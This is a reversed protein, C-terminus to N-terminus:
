GGYAAEVPNDGDLGFEVSTFGSTSRLLYWFRTSPRFISIDAKGDGDYDAVVPLDGVTGWSAGLFTQSGTLLIFFDPQNPDASGRFIATDIKGDGDYDAPM